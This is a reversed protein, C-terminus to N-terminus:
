DVWVRYTREAIKLHFLEQPAYDSSQVNQIMKRINLNENKIKELVKEPMLDEMNPLATIPLTMFVIQKKDEIVEVRIQTAKLSPEKFILYPAIIPKLYVSTKRDQYIRILSFLSRMMLLVWPDTHERLQKIKDGFQHNLEQSYSWEPPIEKEFLPIFLADRLEQERGNFWTADLRLGLEKFGEVVKVNRLLKKLGNTRRESIIQGCGYDYVVVQEGLLGWNRDNLDGHLIGHGLLSHFFFHFIRQHPFQDLDRALCAMIKEQCLFDENSFKAIVEPIKFRSDDKFITQFKTQFLAERKLDTEEEFVETLFRHFLQKEFNFGKSKAFYGGLILLNDIEKKLKEKIGSHLIKLAYDHGDVGVFFVQGMSAALVEGSFTINQHFVEWFLKRVAEEDLSSKPLKTVKGQGLIQGIKATLGQSELLEQAWFKQADSPLFRYKLRLYPIKLLTGLM